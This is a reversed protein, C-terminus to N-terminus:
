KKPTNEKTKVLSIVDSALTLVKSNVKDLRAGIAMVMENTKAVEGAIGALLAFLQRDREQERIHEFGEMISDVIHEDEEDDEDLFEAAFMLFANQSLFYEGNRFLMEDELKPIDSEKRVEEICNVVDDHDAGFNTAIDRSSIYVNGNVIQFNFAGVVGFEKEKKPECAAQLLKETFTDNRPKKETKMDGWLHEAAMKRIPMGKTGPARAIAMCAGDFDVVWAMSANKGDSVLKKEKNDDDILDPLGAVGHQFLEGVDKLKFAPNEKSGYAQLKQGLFDVAGIPRLVREKEVM